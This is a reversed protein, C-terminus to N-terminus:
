MYWDACVMMLGGNCFKWFLAFYLAIITWVLICLSSSLSWYEEGLITLTIFDLIILHTPCIAHIPSLLPTYLTKTHFGTPFLGSKLGLCLHSSLILISGWSTPCPPISPILSAWSLSLHCTSTFATIFRLIAYFTLFKKVLWSITLKGLLVRSWPTYNLSHSGM